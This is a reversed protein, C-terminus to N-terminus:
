WVTWRWQFLLFYGGGLLARCLPSTGVRIQTTTSVLLCTGSRSLISSTSIMGLSLLCGGTHMSGLECCKQLQVKSLPICAFFIDWKALTYCPLSVKRFSIVASHINCREILSWVTWTLLFPAWNGKLYLWNSVLKVVSCSSFFEKRVSRFFFTVWLNLLIPLWISYNCVIGGQYSEWLRQLNGVQTSFASQVMFAFRVALDYGCLKVQRYWCYKFEM